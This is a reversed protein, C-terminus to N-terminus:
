YAREDRGEMYNIFSRNIVRTGGPTPYKGSFYWDGTHNPCAKHLDEISQYIVEIKPKINKPTIIKAIKKSIEQQTFLDYLPLVENKIKEIPKKESALCRKYTEELLHTKKRDKLLAVMANFAVFEGLKSMDIGYCDPFRIQPASSVVIIKKPRLTSTIRLISDRLTAGRVISDDLLVLTDKENNVIGYTVDYVHSILEGRSAGDAIFTRLKADKVVIKEVRAKASLIKSLKKPKIEPGLEKIKKAKIVNLNKELGEVLGFFASEATNPVFSFVTDKFNNNVSKLVPKALM